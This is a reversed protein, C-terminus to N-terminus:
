DDFILRDETPHCRYHALRAALTGVHLEIKHGDPDLCYLSRGESRNQKWVPANSVRRCIEEFDEEAVDFALHTYDARPRADMAADLTLCLWLTGAELYAGDPWLARLRLGLDDRYFGISRPLDSVALTLHNLGVVRAM